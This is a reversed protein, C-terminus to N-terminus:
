DDAEMDGVEPLSRANYEAVLWPTDGGWANEVFVSWAANRMVSFFRVDEFPRNLLSSLVARAAGGHTTVVLTQAPAVDVLADNIAAFVRAGVETRYEGIDGPRVHRGELWARYAVPHHALLEDRRKGEWRGGDTERLRHDTHVPLECRHALAAATQQARGLDSSVIKVPGLEALVAAARAAQRLGVEDLPVDTQGQFRHETNWATQGHRWIVVRRSDDTMTAM